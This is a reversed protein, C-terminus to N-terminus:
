IPPEMKLQASLPAWNPADVQIPPEFLNIFLTPHERGGHGGM